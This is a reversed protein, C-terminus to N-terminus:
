LTSMTKLIEAARWLLERETADLGALRSDLWETRRRRTENILGRGSDTLAVVVHRRDTPDITRTVLGRQELADVTRTMSPPRIQEREALLSVTSPAARLAALVAYQSQTVGGITTETRIRRSTRMIASRLEEALTAAPAPGPREAGVTRQNTRSIM